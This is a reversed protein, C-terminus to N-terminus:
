KEKCTTIYTKVIAVPSPGSYDWTTVIVRKNNWKTSVLVDCTDFIDSVNPGQM